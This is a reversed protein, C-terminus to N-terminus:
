KIYKDRYAYAKDYDNISQTRSKWEDLDSTTLVKVNGVGVYRYFVVAEEKDRPSEWGKPKYEHSFPTWSVPEFGCKAYFGHNGEFSDLKTGGNKVALKLLDRGSSTTDNTNKCVSIIDGKDTVAVTSGGATTYCKAGKEDYEKSTHVDVRWKDKAPQTEKAKAVDNSFKTHDTQKDEPAKKDKEANLKDAQAKHKAIEADKKDEASSAKANTDSKKGFAKKIAEERSEGEGLPIHRGNVTIWEVPESKGM